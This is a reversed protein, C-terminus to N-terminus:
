GHGTVKAAAQLQMLSTYDLIWKAQGYIKSYEVVQDFPIFKGNSYNDNVTRGEGIKDVDINFCFRIVADM